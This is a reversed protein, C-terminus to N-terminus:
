TQEKRASALVAVKVTNCCRDPVAGTGDCSVFPALLLFPLHPTPSGQCASVPHTATHRPCPIEHQRTPLLSFRTKGKNLGSIVGCASMAACLRGCYSATYSRRRVSYRSTRASHQRYSRFSFFQLQKATVASSPSDCMIRLRSSSAPDRSAARPLSQFLKVATPLPANACVQKDPTLSITVDLSRALEPSADSPDSACTSPVLAYWRAPCTTIYPLIGCGTDNYFTYQTFIYLPHGGSGELKV